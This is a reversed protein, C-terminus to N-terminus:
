PLLPRGHPREEAGLAEAVLKPDLRPLCPSTDRIRPLCPSTDRIRPFTAEPLATVAASRRAIAAAVQQQEAPSLADFAKLVDSVAPTM